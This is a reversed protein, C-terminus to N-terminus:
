YRIVFLLNMLINKSRQHAPRRVYDNIMELYVHSTAMSLTILEKRLVLTEIKLNCVVCCGQNRSMM